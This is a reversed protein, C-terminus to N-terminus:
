RWGSILRCRHGALGYPMPHDARQTAAAGSPQYNIEDASNYIQLYHAFTNYFYLVKVKASFLYPRIKNPLKRFKRVNRFLVSFIHQRFNRTHLVLSRCEVGTVALVYLLGSYPNRVVNFLNGFLRVALLPLPKFWKQELTGFNNGYQYTFSISSRTQQTQLTDM